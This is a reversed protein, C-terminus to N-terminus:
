RAESRRERWYDYIEQVTGALGERCSKELQQEEDPGLGLSAALKPGRDLERALFMIPFVLDAVEEADGRSEWRAADLAVGRLYGAAWGTYDDAEDDPYVILEVGRGQLLAAATENSFRMLLDFFEQSQEESKFNPHGDLAAPMWESAPTAEPGSIVACLFGQLEDLMMADESLVDSMLFAELRDLEAETLPADPSAPTM